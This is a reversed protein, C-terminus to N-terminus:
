RKGSRLRDELRGAIQRDNVMLMSNKLMLGTGKKEVRIRSNASDLLLTNATELVVRGTLGNKTPDSTKIIVVDEGIINM